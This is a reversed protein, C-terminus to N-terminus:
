TETRREGEEGDKRPFGSETRSESIYCEKKYIQM